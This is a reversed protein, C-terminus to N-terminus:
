VVSWVEPFIMEGPTGMAAPHKTGLIPQYGDNYFLRFDPGWAVVMAFRSELMISVATRLSQPWESVPGFVTRRWDMSRMLEGMAGGGALCDEPRQIKNPSERLYRQERM